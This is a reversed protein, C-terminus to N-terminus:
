SKSKKAINAEGLYHTDNLSYGFARVSEEFRNELFRFYLNQIPRNWRKEWKSFYQQNINPKMKVNCSFDPVGVFRCIAELSNHPDRVLDEYKLVLLNGLHTTDAAFIDHCLLWHKLLSYLSTRSWKQTAFSTAVPHRMMIVFYSNPFLAQLFRTRILNPPSKELLVPKSLDWYRSWQQFLKKAQTGTALSAKETLYAHPDFGFKGPGGYHGATHFVSQLHQGEDEPM